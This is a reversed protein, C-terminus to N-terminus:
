HYQLCFFVFSFLLVYIVASILTLSHTLTNNNSVKDIYGTLRYHIPDNAYFASFLSFLHSQGDGEVLTSTICPVDCCIVECSM